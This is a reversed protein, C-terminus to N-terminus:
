GDGVGDFGAYGGDFFFSPEEVDTDGPCSFVEEVGPRCGALFAASVAAFAGAEEIVDDGFGVFDGGSFRGFSVPAGGSAFDAAAWEDVHGFSDESSAVVAGGVCVWLDEFGEADPPGAHCFGVVDGGVDHEGVGGEM